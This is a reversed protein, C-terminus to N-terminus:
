EDDAKDGQEVSTLYEGVDQTFQKDNTMRANALLRQAYAQQKATSTRPAKALWNVFVPNLLLRKSAQQTLVLGGAAGAAPAILPTYWLGLLAGAGITGFTGRAVMAPATGSPNAWVKSSDSLMDATKAIDALNDAMKAGGPLGKFLEKRGGADVRNYETLFTRPSWAEGTSDQQGPKARGMDDVLTAVIKGRTGPSVAGRLKAYLTGGNNLSGAVSKYAGEPTANNAIGSLDDARKMGGSYYRNARNLAKEAPGINNPQPGANRDTIQAANKMDKSLGAYLQKFDAQEPTGFIARSSAEKGIDTRVDKIAPLPLGKNRTTNQYQGPVTELTDSLINDRLKAIRPQVFGATTAPALPNVATTANLADLTGNIPFRQSPPVRGAFRDNLETYTGNIRDKFGVKIDDQIAKGAQAAGYERSASDRVQQARDRMGNVNKDRAREYIGVSGPTQSLINELGMVTRNGSALGVSPEDIGGNRLDMMRQEMAQRGSEGGRVTRKIAGAGGRILLEPAMGAVGAWEPSVEGVSGAAVGGAFGRGMNIANQPVSIAAGRVPVVSAGAVRGGTHLIRSMGDEPNPNNIASGLGIDNLKRANWEGAGIMQTRDSPETWEPPAKGTVKSTAYGIGAKGLDLVNAITDVPLGALDAFFGRNVGAAAAQARSGATPEPKRVPATAFQKALRDYKDEETGGQAGFQAALKDYDKTM